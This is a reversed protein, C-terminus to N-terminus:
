SGSKYPLTLTVTYRQKDCQIDLASKGGFIGALRQKINEQAQSNGKHTGPIEDATPNTFCLTIVAGDFKGQIGIEGGEPIREIGHYIMNEILPQLSLPPILADGPLEDIDWKVNLRDLLRHHEIRLYTKCITWEEELTHKQMPGSLNVRFLDALDEISQEALKPSKRTLAAITNMCNFLFHPRIRAQLAQYRATADSRINKRWQHQVYLYHLVIAGVVATIGVSRLLFLRHTNQDAVVSEPYILFMWTLESVFLAILLILLYVVVAALKEPLKLIYRRLLCLTGSCSLAVWQAFLSNLALSFLFGEYVSTALSLTIALLEAGLIVIFSVEASCFDPLFNITDPKYPESM